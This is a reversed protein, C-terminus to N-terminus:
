CMAVTRNSRAFRRRRFSATSNWGSRSGELGVLSTSCVYPLGLRGPSRRLPTLRAGGARGPSTVSISGRLMPWGACGTSKPPRTPGGLDRAIPWVVYALPLRGGHAEILYGLNIWISGQDSTVRLVESLWERTFEEFQELDMKDGDFMGMGPYPPSTVTLAVSGDAIAGLKARCDGAIISM